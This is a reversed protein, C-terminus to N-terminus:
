GRFFAMHKSPMYPTRSPQQQQLQPQEAKAAQMELRQLREDREARLWAEVTGLLRRNHLETM